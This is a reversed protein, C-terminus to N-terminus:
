CHSLKLESRGGGVLVHVVSDGSEGARIDFVNRPFAQGDVGSVRYDGVCLDPLMAGATVLTEPVHLLLHARGCNHPVTANMAFHSGRVAVWDVSVEGCMTGLRASARGLVRVAHRDPTIHITTETSDMSVSIRNRRRLFSAVSWTSPDLGAISYLYPGISSTFMPHNHSNSTDDWTEWITGPGQKVMYGWSPKEDRMAMALAIDGRGAIVLAQLM